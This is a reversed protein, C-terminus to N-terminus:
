CTTCPRREESRCVYMCDFDDDDDDDYDDDYDDYFSTLQGIGSKLFNLFSQDGRTHLAFRMIKASSIIEGSRIVM